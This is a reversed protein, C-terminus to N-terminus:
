TPENVMYIANYSFYEVYRAAISDEEKKRRCISELASSVYLYSHLMGMGETVTLDYM